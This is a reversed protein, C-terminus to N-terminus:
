GAIWVSTCLDLVLEGNKAAFDPTAALAAPWPLDFSVAVFTSRARGRVWQAYQPTKGYHKRVHASSLETMAAVDSKIDLIQGRGIRILSRYIADLSCFNLRWASCKPVPGARRAHQLSQAFSQKVSTPSLLAVVRAKAVAFREDTRLLRLAGDVTAIGDWVACRWKADEFPDLPAKSAPRAKTKSRAKTVAAKTEGAM